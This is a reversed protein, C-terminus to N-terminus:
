FSRRRREKGKMVTAFLSRPHLVQLEEDVRQRVESAADVAVALQENGRFAVIKSRKTSADDGLDLVTFM